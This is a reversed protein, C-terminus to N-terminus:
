FRQSGLTVRRVRRLAVICLRRLPCQRALELIAYIIYRVLRMIRHIVSIFAILEAFM